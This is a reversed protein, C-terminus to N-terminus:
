DPHLVWTRTPRHRGRLEAVAGPEWRREEGSLAARVAEESALV